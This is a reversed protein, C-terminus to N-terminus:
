DGMQNQNEVPLSLPLLGQLYNGVEQAEPSIWLRTSPTITFVGDSTRPFAILTKAIV